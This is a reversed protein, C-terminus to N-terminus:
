INYSLTTYIELILCLFWFIKNYSKQNLIQEIEFFTKGKANVLLMPDTSITSIPSFNKASIQSIPTKEYIYADASESESVITYGRESLYNELEKLNKELSIKM